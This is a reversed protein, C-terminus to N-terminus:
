NEEEIYGLGLNKLGMQELTNQKNNPVAMYAGIIKGETTTPEAEMLERLYEKIVKRLSHVTFEHVDALLLLMDEDVCDVLKLILARRQEKTFEQKFIAVYGNEDM